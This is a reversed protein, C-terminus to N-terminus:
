RSTTEYEEAIKDLTACINYLDRLAQRLQPNPPTRSFREKSLAVEAHVLTAAILTSMAKVHTASEERSDIAAYTSEDLRAQEDIM